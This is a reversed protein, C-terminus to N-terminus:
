KGASSSSTSSPEASRKPSLKLLAISWIRGCLECVVDEIYSRNM